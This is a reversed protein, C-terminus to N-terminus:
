CLSVVPREGTVRSFWNMGELRKYRILFYHWLRVGEARRIWLLQAMVILGDLLKPGRDAPLGLRYLPWGDEVTKFPETWRSRRLCACFRRGPGGFGAALNGLMARATADDSADWFVCATTSGVAAPHRAYIGAYAELAKDWSFEGSRERARRGLERRLAEDEVLRRMAATLARPDKPEVLLGEVGDRVIETIGGVRSAVVAKGAQMAEIAAGGLSERRSPLAFFLCGRMLARVSRHPLQGLWLVRRELGLRRVFAQLKGDSHDAGCLVLQLDPHRDALEAFAMVLVDVGKYEALRAACLIYPAKVGPPPPYDDGPPPELATGYYIVSIENPPRRYWRLIEKRNWASNSNVEFAAAMLRGASAVDFGPEDSM